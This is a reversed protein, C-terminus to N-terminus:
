DDIKTYLKPQARGNNTINQYSKLYNMAAKKNPHIGRVTEYPGKSEFEKIITRTSNSIGVVYYTRYNYGREIKITEYGNVYNPNGLISWKLLFPSIYAPGDDRHLHGLYYYIYKDKSVIAPGNERHLLGNKYWYEINKYIVAPEDDNHILGNKAHITITKNSNKDKCYYAPGKTNHLLGKKYYVHIISYEDDDIIAPGYDNHFLDNEIYFEKFDNRLYNDIEVIYIAPGESCPRNIKGNQAYIFSSLNILAPENERHLDGNKFYIELQGNNAIVAAGDDRHFLGNQAYIIIHGNIAPGDLRHLLGNICYIELITKEKEKCVIAPGDMCSVLGNEIKINLEYQHIHKSKNKALNKKIMPQYFLSIPTQTYQSAAFDISLRDSHKPNYVYTNLGETLQATTSKDFIISAKKSNYIYCNYMHPIKKVYNICEFFSM